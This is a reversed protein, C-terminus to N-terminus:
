ALQKNKIFEQDIEPLAEGDLTAEFSRLRKYVSLLEIMTPWSKLLFQLSDGFGQEAFLLVQRGHWSAPDPRVLPDAPQRWEEAMGRWRWAYHPWGEEFRGNALLTSALRVRRNVNDPAEALRAQLAPVADAMAGQGHVAGLARDLWALATADGPALAAAHELLPLAEELRGALLLAMGLRLALGPNEPHQAQLARFLAIAEDRRGLAWLRAAEEAM